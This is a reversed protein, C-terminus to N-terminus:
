PLVAHALFNPLSFLLEGCLYCLPRLSFPSHTSSASDLGAGKSVLPAAGLSFGPSVWLGGKAVFAFSPGGSSFGLPAWSSLCSHRHLQFFFCIGGSRGSRVPHLSRRRPGGTPIVPQTNSHGEPAVQFTM